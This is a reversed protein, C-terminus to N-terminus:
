ASAFHRTAVYVATGALISLLPNRWRWQLLLVLALALAEPWPGAPHELALGRASHLLLLTMIAPPLFRGLRQVVARRQLWRSAVFPLGRLAYTVLGMAAISAVAYGPEIM